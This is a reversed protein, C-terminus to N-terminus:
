VIDILKFSGNDCKLWKLKLTTIIELEGFTGFNFTLLSTEDDVDEELLDAFPTVVEQLKNILTSKLHVPTGLCVHSAYAVLRNHFTEVMCYLYYTDNKNLYKSPSLLLYDYPVNISNNIHSLDYIYKSRIDIINLTSSSNNVITLFDNMDITM